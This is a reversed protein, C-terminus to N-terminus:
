PSVVNERSPKSQLVTFTNLPKTVVRHHAMFRAPGGSTGGGSVLSAKGMPSAALAAKYSDYYGDDIPAPAAMQCFPTLGRGLRTACGINGCKCNRSM